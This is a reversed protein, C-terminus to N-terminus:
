ANPAAESAKIDEDIRIEAGGRVPTGWGDRCGDFTEVGIGNYECHLPIPVQSSDAQPAPHISEM